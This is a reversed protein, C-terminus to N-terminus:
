SFLQSSNITKFTNEYVPFNKSFIGFFVNVKKCLCSLINLRNHTLVASATGQFSFLFSDFVDFFNKLSKLFYYLFVDQSFEM